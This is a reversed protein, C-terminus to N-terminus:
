PAVRLRKAQALKAKAVQRLKAPQAKGLLALYIKDALYLKATERAIDEKTLKTALNSM